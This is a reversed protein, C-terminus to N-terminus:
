LRPAIEHQYVTTLTDSAGAGAMYRGWLMTSTDYNIAEAPINSQKGWATGYTRGLEIKDAIIMGRVNLQVSRAEADVDESADACTRVVGEAILVADIEEVGCQININNGYIIIQPVESGRGLDFDNYKINGSITIDKAVENVDRAVIIKTESKGASFEEITTGGEFTLVQVNSQVVSSNNLWYDVLASRSVEGATSASINAFGTRERGSGCMLEGLTGYNAFSLPVLTDCYTGTGMYGSGAKNGDFGMAAGSALGTVGGNAVVAQEVWSGFHTENGPADRTYEYGVQWVNKKVSELVAVNGNAYLSGGYVQLSPKKAIMMCAPKSVYWLGDGSAMLNKDVGSTSPYVLISFCMYDGASADFANYTQEWEYEEVSGALNGIMNLGGDYHQIIECQANENKKQVLDCVNSDVNGVGQQEEGSGTASTFAVLRVKAEDVVTAYTAETVANNKMNVNVQANTVVIQEGSYVVESSDRVGSVAVNGTNNFNYPVEVKAQTQVPGETLSHGYYANTHGYDTCHEDGDDDTWCPEGEWNHDESWISLSVPKGTTMEIGYIRGADSASTTFMNQTKNWEKVDSMGDGYDGNPPLNFNNSSFSGGYNREGVWNSLTYKNEWTSANKAKTNTNSSNSNGHDGHSTTYETDATKQVGPYYCGKWAIKDTPMAYTTKDDDSLNQENSGGRWGAYTGALRANKVKEVVSTTGSNATSSNYSAPAWARCLDGEDEGDDEEEEEEEGTVVVTVVQNQSSCSAEVTERGGHCRRINVTRSYAKGEPVEVPTVGAIFADIYLTTPGGNPSAWNGRTVNSGDYIFDQEGTNADKTQILSTTNPYDTCMGAYYITEMGTPEKVYITGVNLTDPTSAIWLSCYNNYKAGRVAQDCAWQVSSVGQRGGSESLCKQENNYYKSKANADVALMVTAGMVMALLIWLRLINKRM